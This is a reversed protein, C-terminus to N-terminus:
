PAGERPEAGVCGTGATGLAIASPAPAAAVIPKVACGLLAAAPAVMEGATCTVARSACPFVAVAKAPVTVSPIPIFGAPPVSEPVVLAAGTFPTAVKELKLM